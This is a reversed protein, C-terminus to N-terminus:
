EYLKSKLINSIRKPLNNKYNWLKTIKNFESIKKDFEVAIEIEKKTGVCEFPKIETESILKNIIVKLKNNKYLNYPFIELIRDKLFPYLLIFTSLCKPCECCWVGKVQGMNCSRIVQFFKDYRSFIKSIQIEYLPRLFSFYNINSLYNSNYKRFDNEFEFTKSYQHNIDHDLYRVNGENSSRENSFAINKYNFVYGILISLFALYASFPTHGNLAGNKNLDLLKTDFIRQAIFINQINAKKATLLSPKIDCRVNISELIMAGVEKLKEELIEATIASDKGGGIPILTKKETVMAKKNFTKGYSIIKIFDHSRFEINNEFYFQGMGRIFLKKWWKSQNNTLKGCKIKIIPACSVKWYSLLEIIGLNFVLTNLIDPDMKKYLDSSVGPIKVQPSFVINANIKFNFTIKLVDEFHEIKFNEYSFESYNQKSKAIM